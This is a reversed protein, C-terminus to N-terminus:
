DYKDVIQEIDHRLEAAVRDVDVYKSFEVEAVIKNNSKDTTIKIIPEVAAQKAIQKFVERIGRFFEQEVTAM